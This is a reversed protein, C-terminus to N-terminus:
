YREGSDTSNNLMDEYRVGFDVKKAQADWVLGCMKNQTIGVINPVAPIICEKFEPHRGLYRVYDRQIGDLSAFSIAELPTPYMILGKKICMLEFQPTLEELDYVDHVYWVVQNEIFDTGTLPTIVDALTIDQRVCSSSCVIRPKDIGEVIFCVRIM